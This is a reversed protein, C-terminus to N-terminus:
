RLTAVPRGPHQHTHQGVEAGEAQSTPCTPDDVGHHEGSGHDAESRGSGARTWQRISHRCLCIREREDGGHLAVGVKRPDEVRCEHLWCGGRPLASPQEDPGLVAGLGLVPVHMISSLQLRVAAVAAASAPGSQATCLPFERPPERHTGAAGRGMGGGTGRGNGRGPLPPPDDVVRPVVMKCDEYVRITCEGKDYMYAEYAEGTGGCGRNSGPGGRAVTHM